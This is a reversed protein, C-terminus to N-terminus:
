NEFYAKKGSFIYGSLSRRGSQPTESYVASCNDTVTGTGTPECDWTTTSVGDVHNTSIGTTCGYSRTDVQASEDGCLGDVSPVTGDLEVTLPASVTGSSDIVYLYVTADVAFSGNNIESLTISTDSWATPYQIECHTRSSWTASDCIEVRAQSGKQIYFDDSWVNLSTMTNALLNQWLFARHRRTGNYTMVNNITTTAVAAGDTANYTQVIVTGNSSGVSSEHVYLDMRYWKEEIDPYAPYAPTSNAEVTNGPRIYMQNQNTWNFMVIQPYDDSIEDQYNVRFMKWQASSGGYSQNAMRVWWSVFFEDGPAIDEGSDYRLPSFFNTNTMPAYLSKTGSHVQSTSTVQSPIGEFSWNAIVPTSGTATSEIPGSSGGIWEIDLDHTGFGSGTLVGTSQNYNTPASLSNTACLLVLLVIIRKM